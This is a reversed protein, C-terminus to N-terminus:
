GIIGAVSGFGQKKEMLKKEYWNKLCNIIHIISLTCLKSGIQLGRYPKQDNQKGKSSREHSKLVM